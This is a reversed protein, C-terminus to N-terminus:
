ELEITQRMVDFPISPIPVLPSATLRDLRALADEAAGAENLVLTGFGFGTRLIREAEQTGDCILKECASDKAVPYEVNALIASQQWDDFKGAVWFLGRLELGVHCKLSQDGRPPGNGVLHYKSHSGGSSTM